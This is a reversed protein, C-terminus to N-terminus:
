AATYVEAPPSEGIPVIRTGWGPACYRLQDLFLGLTGRKEEHRWRHRSVRVRITPEARLVGAAATEDDDEVTGLNVGTLPVGLARLASQADSLRDRFGRSWEIWRTGKAAREYELWYEVWQAEGTSALDLLQGVGVSRGRKLDSRALEASAGWKMGSKAVYEAAMVGAGGHRRHHRSGARRVDLSVNPVWLWGNREFIESWGTVLERVLPRYGPETFLLVHMHWHWGGGDPNLTVEAARIYGTVGCRKRVRRLGRKGYERWATSFRKRVVDLAECRDHPVTFTAMWVEWGLAEAVEVAAAIDAARHERVRPACWPCFGVQGCHMVGRVSQSGDVASTVDVDGEAHLCKAAGANGLADAHGKRWQHRRLRERRVTLDKSM